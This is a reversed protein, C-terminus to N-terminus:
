FIECRSDVFDTLGTFSTGPRLSWEGGRRRVWKHRLKRQEAASALGAGCGGVISGDEPTTADMTLCQHAATENSGNGNAEPAAIPAFDVELQMMNSVM